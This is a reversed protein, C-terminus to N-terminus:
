VGKYVRVTNKSYSVPTSHPQNKKSMWVYFTLVLDKTPFAFSPLYLYANVNEIVLSKTCTM